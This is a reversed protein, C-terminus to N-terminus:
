WKRCLLYTRGDMTSSCFYRVQFYDLITTKNYIAPRHRHHIELWPEVMFYTFDM